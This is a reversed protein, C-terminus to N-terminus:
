VIDNFMQKGAGCLFRLNRPLFLELNNHPRWGYRQLFLVVEMFHEMDQMKQCALTMILFVKVM